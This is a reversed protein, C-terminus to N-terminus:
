ITADNMFQYRNNYPADEGNTSIYQIYPYMEVLCDPKSAWLTDRSMIEISVQNTQTPDGAGVQVYCTLPTTTGSPNKYIPDFELTIIDGDEVNSKQLHLWEDNDIFTQSNLPIPTAPDNDGAGPREIKVISWKAAGPKYEFPFPADTDTKGVYVKPLPVYYGPVAMAQASNVLARDPTLDITDIDTAEATTFLVCNAVPNVGIMQAHHLYYKYTMNAPNYFPPEIGYQVDRCFIFDESTLAAYVNPIPFDPITVIRYQIDAKDLQFVSALAQVDLNAMTEPTVWLILTDGNEYVPVDIHNYLVSPFKMRGAIARIATLLEKGTAETTPAASIHYKYLGGLRNEAEGFAQIMLNMEDYEDSSIMQSITAALLDDFGYGDSAFVRALEYRSWSFEYRRPATVSYFWERYEPKELKLLTEDDAKYSHAKLYRVAVHRETNGFRAAPKKLSRLPNYFTKSEIYTGMLGNLLGSFQNFLDNNYPAFLESVVNAYDAQTPNPIRQQFDNSGELWAKELITSNLVSM